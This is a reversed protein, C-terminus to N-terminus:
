LRATRKFERLREKILNKIFEIISGLRVFSKRYRAKRFQTPIEGVRFGLRRSQIIIEADLFWDNSSLSMKEYADRTFVKPKSNIDKIEIGPFLFRTLGNFLFSNLVRGMGDDRKDRRPLVLDLDEKKIKEYVRVIDEWPMQEDGDILCIHRGLAKELGSRADWGMMGLKPQAVAVIRPDKTALEQVVHPTEDNANEFYNGVLVIEWFPTIAELLDIVKPVINRVRQGERYCLIVVSLEVSATMPAFVKFV